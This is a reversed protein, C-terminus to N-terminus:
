LFVYRHSQLLCLFMSYTQLLFDVLVHDLYGYDWELLVDCDGEMHCKSRQWGKILKEGAETIIWM